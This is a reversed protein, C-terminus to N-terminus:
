TPLTRLSATTRAAAGSKGVQHAAFLGTCAFWPCQHRGTVASCSDSDAQWLPLARCDHPRSLYRLCLKSLCAASPYTAATPIFLPWDSRGTVRLTVQRSLHEWCAVSM